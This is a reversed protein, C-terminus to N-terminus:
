VGGEEEKRGGEEKWRKKHLIKCVRGFERRYFRFSFQLALAFM